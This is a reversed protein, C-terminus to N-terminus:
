ICKWQRETEGNVKCEEDNETKEDYSIAKTIRFTFHMMGCLTILM